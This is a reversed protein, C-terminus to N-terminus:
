EILDFYDENIKKIELTKEVQCGINYQIMLEALRHGDILIINLDEATDVADPTFSSTTVFIGKAVQKQRLTGSFGRIKEGSIKDEQAYRKAQLYIKDVGLADQNILGEVGGDGSRGLVEGLGERGGYGMSLMLDVILGEFFKPEENRIQALLDEALSENITAFNQYITEEPTSVQEEAAESDTDQSGTKESRREQFEQFTKFQELYKIDIEDQVELIERGKETIESHSRRTARLLGANTLYTKAWSVRNLLRTQRKSPVLEQMQGETLNFHEGMKQCVEQLSREGSLYAKLVPRFFEKFSPISSEFGDDEGLEENEDAAEAETGPSRLKESSRAKFERFSEFREFYKADLEDGSELVSIGQETIDSYGRRTSKLLGAQTLYTRAWSTRDYLRTRDRGSPVLEQKQAETLGFYEGM